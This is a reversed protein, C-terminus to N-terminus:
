RTGIALSAAASADIFFGWYISNPTLLKKGAQLHHAAAAVTMAAQAQHAQHAQAHIAIIDQTEQEKM